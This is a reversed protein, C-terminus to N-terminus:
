LRGGDQNITIEKIVPPALAIIKDDDKHQVKNSKDGGVRWRGGRGEGGKSAGGNGTADEQTVM